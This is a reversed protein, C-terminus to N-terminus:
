ATEGTASIFAALTQRAKGADIATAALAIGEHLDTCREAVVLAAATNLLVIDRYAGRKGCLVDQLAVANEEPLGGLLADADVREIGYDEPTVIFARIDGRYLEVVQTPATTTIEDMGDEGCVLWAKETGLTRLAEAMPHLWKTDYVGLLQRSTRAPNALPGLLNFITRLGLELRVHTVHRMAHHYAPAFLFCLHTKALALQSAEPTIDIKVGLASLIDSSGSSSTIGRNGHKVVPVGCAAAVIAVTTSINFTRKGDGGTGCTDIAGEPATFAISKHRLVTAGATIEEATEGKLRLGMLFAAIQAPTAGGTLIIHFAREALAHPLDRGHALETLIDQIQNSGM